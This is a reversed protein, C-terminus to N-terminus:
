WLDSRPTMPACPHPMPSRISPGAPFTPALPDGKGYQLTVCWSTQSRGSYTRASKEKAVSRRDNPRSALPIGDDDAAISPTRTQGPRLCLALTPTSGEGCRRCTNMIDECSQAMNPTSHPPADRALSLNPSPSVLAPPAVCPYVPLYGQEKLARGSSLSVRSIDKINM